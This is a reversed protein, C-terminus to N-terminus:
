WSRAPKCSNQTDCYAEIAADPLDGHGLSSGSPRLAAAAAREVGGAAEGGFVRVAGVLGVVAEGDVQESFSGFARLFRGGRAM